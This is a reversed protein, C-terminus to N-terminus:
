NLSNIWAFVFFIEIKMTFLQTVIKHVQGGFIERLFETFPLNNFDIRITEPMRIWPIVGHKFFVPPQHIWDSRSFLKRQEECGYGVFINLLEIGVHYLLWSTKVLKIKLCLMRSLDQGKTPWTLLKSLDWWWYFYVPISLAPTGKRVLSKQKGRM